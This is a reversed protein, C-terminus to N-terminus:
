CGQIDPHLHHKELCQLVSMPVNHHPEFEIALDQLYNRASEVNVVHPLHMLEERIVSARMTDIHEDIHICCVNNMVVELHTSHGENV